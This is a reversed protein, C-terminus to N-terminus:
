IELVVIMALPILMNFQIFYTGVVALTMTTANTNGEPFIYTMGNGYEKIFEYFMGSMIGDLVLIGVINIALIINLKKEIQSQKFQYTGQNMIIKTDVGTYAVL